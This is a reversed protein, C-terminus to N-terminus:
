EFDRWGRSEGFSLPPPLFPLLAFWCNLGGNKRILPPPVSLRVGISVTCLAVPRKYTRLVVVCEAHTCNRGGGFILVDLVFFHLSRHQLNRTFLVLWRIMYNRTVESLRWTNFSM